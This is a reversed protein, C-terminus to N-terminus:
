IRRIRSRDYYILGDERISLRGTGDDAAIAVQCNHPITVEKMGAIDEQGSIVYLLGRMAGGHTIILIRLERFAPDAQLEELFCRERLIVDRIDEGGEPLEIEEPATFFRDFDDLPLAYNDFGCNMGEWEGFNIEKIREDTFVPVGCTERLRFSYQGHRELFAYFREKYGENQKLIHGATEVARSLPSSICLDIPVDRLGWGTAEALEIGNENLPIDTHGQLRRARNWDTEGHRILYLEM